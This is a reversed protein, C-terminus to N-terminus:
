APTLKRATRRNLAALMLGLLLGTAAGLLPLSHVGTSGYAHPLIVHGLFVGALAGSVGSAFIAFPHSPAIKRYVVEMLSAHVLSPLAAFVSAYGTFAITLLPVELLPAHLQPSELLALIVSALFAPLFANLLFRPLPKM